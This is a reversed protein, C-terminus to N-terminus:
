KKIYKNYTISLYAKVEFFTQILRSFTNRKLWTTKYVPIANSGFKTKYNNESESALLDLSNYKQRILNKIELIDFIFMPSLRKDDESKFGSLYSYCTNRYNFNYAAVIPINDIHLIRFDVINQESFRKCLKLHFRSFKVSDFVNNDDINKWRARHLNETIRLGEELNKESTVHINGLKQMRNHKLRFQKRVSKSLHSFYDDENTNHPFSLLFQNANQKSKVSLHSSLQKSVQQIISNEKLLDFSAYHFSNNKLTIESKLFDSIYTVVKDRYEENVIIDPYHTVAADSHKEGEGLLSLRSIYGLQNKLYFPAISILKSGEYLAIIYLKDKQSKYVEWWTYVWEWLIFPNPDQSSSVLQNWQQKLQLFDKDNHILDVQYTNISHYFTRGLPQNEDHFNPSFDGRYYFKM